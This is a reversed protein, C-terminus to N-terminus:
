AILITYQKHILSIDLRMAATRAISSVIGLEVGRVTRLPLCRVVVAHLRHDLAVLVVGRYNKPRHTVLTAIALYIALHILPYVLAVSCAEHLELLAVTTRMGVYAARHVGWEILELCPCLAGIGLFWVYHTLEGMGHTIRRTVEALEEVYHLSVGVHLTTKYPVPYVLTDVSYTAITTVVPSIATVEARPHVGVILVEAAVAEYRRVARRM